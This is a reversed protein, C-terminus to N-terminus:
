ISTKIAPLKHWGITDCYFFDGNLEVIDSVSMSRGKFNRTWEATDGIGNFISYIDELNDTDNKETELVCEYDNINFDHKTQEGWGCFCYPTEVNKIQFIRLM